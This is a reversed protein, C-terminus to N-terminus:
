QAYLTEVFEKVEARVKNLSRHYFHGENELPISKVEGNIQSSIKTMNEFPVTLDSTGHLMLVPCAIGSLHNMQFGDEQYLDLSSSVSIVFKVKNVSSFRLATSGGFSYGAIGVLEFGLNDLMKAAATTDDVAGSVGSYESRSITGRFNFRFTAYGADLFSDVVSRVVPNYMDGGHLPHPHLVLVTRTTENSPKDLIGSLESEGVIFRVQESSLPGV